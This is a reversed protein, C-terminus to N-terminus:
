NINWLVLKNQANEIRNIISELESDNIVIILNPEANSKEMKKFNWFGKRKDTKIKILKRQLKKNRKMTAM